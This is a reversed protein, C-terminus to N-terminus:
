RLVDSSYERYLFKLSDGTRGNYILEQRFSPRDVDSVKTRTLVPEPKPKMVPNSSIHFKIDKENNHSVALGGLQMQTGLMADYVTLNPTTYYIRENDRMTAKLTGPALTLKKLLIGDGATVINELIVADYTNLKGKKVLTDGLAATRVDGIGPLDVISLTPSIAQKPTACGSLFIAFTLLASCLYVRM